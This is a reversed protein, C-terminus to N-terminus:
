AEVMDHRRRECALEVIRDGFTGSSISGSQGNRRFAAKIFCPEAM